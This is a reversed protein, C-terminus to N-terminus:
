GIGEGGQISWATTHYMSGTSSVGKGQEGKLVIVDCGRQYWLSTDNQQREHQRGHASMSQNTDTHLTYPILGSMELLCCDLGTQLSAVPEQSFMQFHTKIINHSPHPHVITRGLWFLKFCKSECCTKMLSTLSIVYINTWKVLINCIINMILIGNVTFSNNYKKSLNM